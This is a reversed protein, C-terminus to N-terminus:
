ERFLNNETQTEVSILNPQVLMETQTSMSVTTKQEIDKCYSESYQKYNQKYNLHLIDRLVFRCLVLFFSAYPVKYNINVFVSHGFQSSIHHFTKCLKLESLFKGRKPNCLLVNTHALKDLYFYLISQIRLPDKDNNGCMVVVYDFKSFDKCLELSSELLKDTTAGPKSFSSVVFNSGILKQLTNRMHTREDSYILVRNRYADTKNVIIESNSVASAPSTNNVENVGQNMNESPSINSIIVDNLEKETTSSTRENQQVSHSIPTDTTNELNIHLESYSENLYSNRKSKTSKRKKSSVTSNNIIRCSDTCLLKYKDLKNQQSTIVQQLSINESNLNDVENQSRELDLRLKTIENRLEEVEHNLLVKSIDPLSRASDSLYISSSTNMSNDVYSSHSSVGKPQKRRLTINKDCSDM